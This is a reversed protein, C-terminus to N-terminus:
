PRSPPKSGEAGRRSPPLESRVAKLVDAAFLWDSHGDSKRALEEALAEGAPPLSSALVKATLGLVVQMEALDAMEAELTIGADAALCKLMAFRSSGLADALKAADMLDPRRHGKEYNSVRSQTAFECKESLKEQTLGANERLEKLYAPFRDVASNNVARSTQALVIHTSMKMVHRSVRAMFAISRAISITPPGEASADFNPVKGDTTPFQFNRLRAGAPRQTSISFAM